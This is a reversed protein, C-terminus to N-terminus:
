ATAKNRKSASNWAARKLVSIKKMEEQSVWEADPSDAELLAAEVQSRFWTDHALAEQARRQRAATDPRKRGSNEAEEPSWASTDVELTHAGMKHLVEIAKAPNRFGRPKQGHTTALTIRKGTRPKATVFFVGGSAQLSISRFGGALFASRFQDLNLASKM